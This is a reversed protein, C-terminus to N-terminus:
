RRPGSRAVSQSEACQLPRDGLNQKTRDSPGGRASTPSQTSIPMVSAKSIYDVLTEPRLQMSISCRTSRSHLHIAHSQDQYYNQNQKQNACNWAPGIASTPSVPGASTNPEDQNDYQYKQKEPADLRLPKGRFDPIPSPGGPASLYDLALPASYLALPLRSGRRGQYV